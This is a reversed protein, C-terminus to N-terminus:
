VKRRKGGKKASSGTTEAVDGGSAIMADLEEATFDDNGASRAPAAARKPDLQGILPVTTALM